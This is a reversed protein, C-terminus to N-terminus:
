YIYSTGKRSQSIHKVKVSMENGGAALQSFVSQGAILLSHASAEQELPLFYLLDLFHGLADCGSSMKCVRLLRFVSSIGTIKLLGSIQVSCSMYM